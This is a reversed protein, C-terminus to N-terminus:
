HEFRTSQIDEATEDHESQWEGVPRNRRSQYSPALNVPKDGTDVQLGQTVGSETGFDSRHRLQPREIKTEIRGIHDPNV